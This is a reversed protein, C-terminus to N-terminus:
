QRATLGAEDLRTAVTKRFVHSHVWAFPPVGQCPEDWVVGEKDARVKPPGAQQRETKLHPHWGRGGCEACGIRDLVERLDGATNSPDRLANASCSPFVVGEAQFRVEGARRELMARLYPPLALVRWGAATKPRPQIVLGRGKVRVLTANIEWTGESAVLAADRTACSEGIRAGTGLMWDVLDPLDWLTARPDSRLLDCLQETEAVTLARVASRQGGPVSSADRVPNVDIAGHRIALKVIGSLATKATRAAGAGHDAIIGDLAKDVVSPRLEALRVDGLDRRIHNTVSYAYSEATRTAWPRRGGNNSLWLTAIEAVTTSRTIASAQVHGREEALAELLRRKAEAKTQGFRAVPRTGGTTDRFRARAKYKSPGVHQVSIEGWTGLPLRPRGM